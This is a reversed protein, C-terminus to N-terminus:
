ANEGSTVSILCETSFCQKEVSHARYLSTGGNEIAAHWQFHSDNSFWTKRIVINFFGHIATTSRHQMQMVASSLPVAPVLFVTFVIQRASL